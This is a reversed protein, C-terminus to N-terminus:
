RGRAMCAKQFDRWTEGNTTGYTKAHQWQYACSHHHHRLYLWPPRAMATQAMGLMCAIALAVSMTRKKM